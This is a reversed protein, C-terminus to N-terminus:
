VLLQACGNHHVASGSCDAPFARLCPLKEKRGDDHRQDGRELQGSERDLKGSAASTQEDGEGDGTLYALIAGVRWVVSDIFKCIIEDSQPGLIEVIVLPVLWVWVLLHTLLAFAAIKLL